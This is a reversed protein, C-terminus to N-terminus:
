KIYKEGGAAHRITYLSSQKWNFGTAYESMGYIAGHKVQLKFKDGIRKFKHYWQFCIPMTGRDGNEDAENLRLAVVKLREADGHYGIGHKTRDDYGNGEAILNEGKKGFVKAILEKARSLNPLSDFSVIRGKGNEYDPEQSNKDFCLNKRARKNLVKQRRVDWYKRDWELASLEQEIADALDSDVLNEIEIMVTDPLYELMGETITETTNKDGVCDILLEKMDYINVVAEPFNDNIYKKANQFDELTFGDGENVRCGIQQNGVHNEGSDGFTVTIVSKRSM